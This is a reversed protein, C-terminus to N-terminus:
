TLKVCRSAGFSLSHNKLYMCVSAACVVICIEVNQGRVSHSLNEKGRALEANQQRRKTLEDTLTQDRKNSSEFISLNTRNLSQVAEIETTSPRSKPCRQRPVEGELEGSREGFITTQNRFCARSGGISVQRQEAAQM